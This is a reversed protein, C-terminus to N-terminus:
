VQSPPSAKRDSTSSPQKFLEARLQEEPPVLEILRRMTADDDGLNLGRRKSDLLFELWHEKAIPFDEFPHPHGHTKLDDCFAILMDNTDLTEAKVEQLARLPNMGGAIKEVASFFMEQGENHKDALLKTLQRQLEDREKVVAGLRDYSKKM